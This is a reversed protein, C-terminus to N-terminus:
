ATGMGFISSLAVKKGVALKLGWLVPMPLVVAIADLTINLIGIYLDLAKQNGCVGSKISHNWRFSIPRCILCNALITAFMFAVNLGLAVYCTTRFRKIRFIHIYLFIISVRVFTVAVVWILPAILQSQTYTLGPPWFSYPTTGQVRLEDRGKDERSESARGVDYWLM